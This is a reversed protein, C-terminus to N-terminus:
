QVFYGVLTFEGDRMKSLDYWKISSDKENAYEYIPLPNTHSTNQFLRGSKRDVIEFDLAVADALNEAPIEVMVSNEINEYHQVYPVYRNNVYSNIVEGDKNVARISLEDVSAGENSGYKVFNLKFNCDNQTINYDYEINKIIKNYKTMNELVEITDSNSDTLISSINGTVKIEETTRKFSFSGDPKPTVKYWGAGESVFQGESNQAMMYAMYDNFFTYGSDDSYIVDITTSQIAITQSDEDFGIALLGLDELYQQISEETDLVLFEEPLMPQLTITADLRTKLSELDNYEIEYKTEDLSLGLQNVMTKIQAYKDSSRICIAQSDGPKIHQTLLGTNIAISNNTNNSITKVCPVKSFDQKM